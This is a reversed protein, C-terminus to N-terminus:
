FGVSHSVRLPKPAAGKKDMGGVLDVADVEDVSSEKENQQLSTVANASRNLIETIELSNLV